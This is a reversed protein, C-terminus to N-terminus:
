ETVDLVCQIDYEDPEIGTFWVRKVSLFYGIFIYGTHTTIRIKDGNEMYTKLQDILAATGKAFYLTINDKTSRTEVRIIANNGNALKVKQHTSSVSIEINENSRPVPTDLDWEGASNEIELTWTSM